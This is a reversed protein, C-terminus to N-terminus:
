IKVYNKKEKTKGEEPISCAPCINEGAKTGAVQYGAEVFERVARANLAADTAGPARLIKVTTTKRCKDCRVTKEFVPIQGSM